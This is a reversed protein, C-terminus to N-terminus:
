VSKILSERFLIMLDIKQFTIFKKVTMMEGGKRKKMNERFREM